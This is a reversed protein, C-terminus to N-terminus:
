QRSTLGAIFAKTMDIDPPKGFEQLFSRRFELVTTLSGNAGTAAFHIESSGTSSRIQKTQNKSLFYQILEESPTTGFVENFQQRFKLVTIQPDKIIKKVFALGNKEEETPTAEQPTNDPMQQQQTKQLCHQVFNESPPRGYEREFAQRFLSEDLINSSSISRARSRGGVLTGNKRKPEPRGIYKLHHLIDNDPTNLIAVFCDIHEFEPPQGLKEIFSFHLKEISSKPQAAIEEILALQILWHDNSSTM